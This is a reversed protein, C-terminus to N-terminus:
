LSKDKTSGKKVVDSRVGGGGGGREQRVRGAYSETQDWVETLITIGSLVAM